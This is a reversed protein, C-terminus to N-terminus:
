LHTAHLDIEKAVDDSVSALILGEEVSVSASKVVPIDIEVIIIHIIKPPINVTHEKM